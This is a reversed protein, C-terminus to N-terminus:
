EDGNEDEYTVMLTAEEDALVLLDTDTEEVELIQVEGADVPGSFGLRIDGHESWQLGQPDGADGENIGDPDYGVSLSPVNDHVATTLEEQASESLQDFEVEAMASGALHESDVTFLQVGPRGDAMLAEVRAYRTGAPLEAVQFKPGVTRVLEARHCWGPGGPLLCVLWLLATLGVVGVLGAAVYALPRKWDRKARLRVTYETEEPSLAINQRHTAGDALAIRVAMQETDVPLDRVEVTGSADTQGVPIEEGSRELTVGVGKWPTDDRANLVRLTVTRERQLTLTVTASEANTGAKATKSVASAGRVEPALAVAVEEDPSLGTIKAVGSPDSQASGLMMGQGDRAVVTLESAASGDPELLRVWICAAEMEGIRQGIIGRLISRPADWNPLLHGWQTLVPRDGVRYLASITPIEFTKELASLLTQKDGAHLTQDSRLRTELEQIEVQTRRLLQEQAEDDLDVFSVVAGPLDTLWQFTQRGNDDLAKVPKAFLRHTGHEALIKRFQEYLYGVEVAGEMLPRIESCSTVTIVRMEQEEAM